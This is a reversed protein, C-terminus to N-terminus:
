LFMYINQLRAIKVNTETVRSALAIENFCIYQRCLRSKRQRFYLFYVNKDFQKWHETEIEQALNSDSGVFM